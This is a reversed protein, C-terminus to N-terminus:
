VMKLLPFFNDEFKLMEDTLHGFGGHVELNCCDKEARGTLILNDNPKIQFDDREYQDQNLYFVVDFVTFKVYVNKSSRDKAAVQQTKSPFM